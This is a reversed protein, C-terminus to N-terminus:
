SHSRQPNLHSLARGAAVWIQWTQPQLPAVTCSRFSREIGADAVRQYWLSCRRPLDLGRITYEGDRLAFTRGYAETLSSCSLTATLRPRPLAARSHAVAWSSSHDPVYRQLGNRTLGVAFSVDSPRHRAYRTFLDETWSGASGIGPFCGTWSFPRKRTRLLATTSVSVSITHIYTRVCVHVLSIWRRYSQASVQVPTFTFPWPM